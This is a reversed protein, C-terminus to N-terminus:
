YCVIFRQTQHLTREKDALKLVIQAPLLDTDEEQKVVKLIGEKEEENLKNEPFPRKALPRQDVIVDGEAM